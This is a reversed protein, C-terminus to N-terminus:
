AEDDYFREEELIDARRDITDEWAEGTPNPLFRDFFEALTAVEQDYADAEMIKSRTRDDHIGQSEHRLARGSVTNEVCADIIARFGEELAESGPLKLEPEPHEESAM